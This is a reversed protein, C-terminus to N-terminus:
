DIGGIIPRLTLDQVNPLREVVLPIIPDDAEDPHFCLDRVKVYTALIANDHVVHAFSELATIVDDMGTYSRPDQPVFAVTSFIHRQCLPRFTRHTLSCSKLSSLDKDIGLVDFISSIDFPLDAGWLAM